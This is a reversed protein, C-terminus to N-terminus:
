SGLGVHWFKWLVKKKLKACATVYKMNFNLVNKKKWTLSSCKTQSVQLMSHCWKVQQHPLMDCTWVREEREGLVCINKNKKHPHRGGATAAFKQKFRWSLGVTKNDQSYIIASGSALAMVWCERMLVSTWVQFRNEFCQWSSTWLSSRWGDLQAHKYEVAFHRRPLVISWVIKGRAGCILYVIVTGNRNNKEVGGGWWQPRGKLLRGTLLPPSGIIERLGRKPFFILYQM